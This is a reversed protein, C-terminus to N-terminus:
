PTPLGFEGADYKKWFEAVPLLQGPSVGIRELSQMDRVSKLGRVIDQPTFILETLKLDTLPSLDTLQGQTNGCHLYRLPMGKIVSLDSVATEHMYLEQLPMGEIPSLNSVRTKYINLFKLQKGRLPSLDSIPNGNADVIELPMKQLASLDPVQSWWFRLETLPMEALPSLDSVQTNQFNLYRLHLGRLCSLDSLESKTSANWKLRQLGSLARVPSVDKVKDIRFSLETVTLHEFKPQGHGNIGTLKGDFEPNLEVLKKSVAEIQQIPVMAAVEKMWAQFEPTEWHRQYAGALQGTPLSQPMLLVRFGVDNAAYNSVNGTVSASRSMTAGGNWGGGRFVRGTGTTPGTPDPGGIVPGLMNSCWEWVNGHMDKLGWANSKKLGVGHAFSQDANKTNADYWAYQDLDSENEGFSYSTTTGARCAWEWQALTPLRYEWGTPLRGAAREQATLKACFEGASHAAIAGDGADGHSINVAPFNSGEKLNDQGQWPTSNMLRQWQGQTVETEGIWFAKTLTVPLRDGGMIYEGPPILHLQMGLSNKYEVPVKLSAAWAQQHAQAQAANFPAKAPPPTLGAESERERTLLEKVADAILVARFGLFDGRSSPEFTDRDASRGYTAELFFCGGRRVRISGESRGGPDSVSGVGYADTLDSCWEWVNGHVDSLGFPNAKLEGAAHTRRGSNGAFWGAQILDEDKDGSWFRTTTGARCAYEWEAETPLRYGTGELLTVTEGSRSYFPKRQEQQSLKACFEAADNWSVMEVPHNGTDLNAVKEKWQGTASWYSPNTGMVQEYQVQTVETVGVYIPKTLVVKHQPGESEIDVRPSQQSAMLQEAQIEEPASGMLFEGPPILRFKMGISNTYEVPVKLSAAWAQQHAQAQEANFPAIAPPPAGVPWSTKATAAQTKLAQRVGDVTLAVRFGFFHNSYTPDFAGRRSSRCGSAANSWNGGRLARQSGPGSSANPNIAPKESFQGYYTPEWANEMWEDVNGHMDHLGLPNAKM